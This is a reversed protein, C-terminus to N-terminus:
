YNFRERGYPDGDGSTGGSGGSDAFTFAAAPSEAGFAGTPSSSHSVRVYVTKTGTGGDTRSVVVVSPLGAADATTIQEILNTTMASDDAVRVRRRVAFQSYGTVVLTIEDNTAAGAQTLAPAATERQFPIEAWAADDLRSVSPVNEASLSVAGFLVNRDTVPNFDLPVRQGPVFAGVLQAATPADDRGRRYIHVLAAPVSEEGQWLPASEVAAVLSAGLSPRAILDGM